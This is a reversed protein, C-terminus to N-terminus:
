GKKWDPHVAGSPFVTKAFSVNPDPVPEPELGNTVEAILHEVCECSRTLGDIYVTISADRAFIRSYVVAAFKNPEATFVQGINKVDTLTFHDNCKMNQVESATRWRILSRLQQVERNLYYIAKELDQVTNGKDGRRFVYKFANGTNFPLREALEICEVGSPHKNYHAAKNIIDFQKEDSDM